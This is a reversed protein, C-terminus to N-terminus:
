ASETVAKIQPDAAPQSAESLMLRDCLSSVSSSLMSAQTPPMLSTSSGVTTSRNAQASPWTM